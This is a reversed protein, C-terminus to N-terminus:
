IEWAGDARRRRMRAPVGACGPRVHHLWAAWREWRHSRWLGAPAEVREPLAEARVLLDHERLRAKGRM